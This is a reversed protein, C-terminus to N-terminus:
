WLVSAIKFSLHLIITSQNETKEYSKIDGLAQSPLVYDANNQNKQLKDQAAQELLPIPANPDSPTQIEQSPRLTLYHRTFTSRRNKLNKTNRKRKMMRLTRAVLRNSRLDEWLNTKSTKQSFKKGLSLKTM